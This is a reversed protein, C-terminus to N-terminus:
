GLRRVPAVGTAHRGDEGSPAQSGVHTRMPVGATMPKGDSESSPTIATRDAGAHRRAALSAFILSALYSAFEDFCGSVALPVDLYERLHLYSCLHDSM